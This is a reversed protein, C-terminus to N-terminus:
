VNPYEQKCISPFLTFINPTCATIRIYNESPILDMAPTKSYEVWSVMGIMYWKFNWAAEDRKNLQMGDCPRIAM